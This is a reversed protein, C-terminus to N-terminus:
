LSYLRNVIKAFIDMTSTQFPKLYAELYHQYVHEFKFFPPPSNVFFSLCKYSQIFFVIKLGLNLFETTKQIEFSDPINEQIM